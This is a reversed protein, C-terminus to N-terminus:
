ATLAAFYKKKLTEQLKDNTIIHEIAKNEYEADLYKNALGRSIEKKLNCVNLLKRYDRSNNIKDFDCLIDSLMKEVDIEMISKLNNKVDALNECKDLKKSELYSDISTKIRRLAIREMNARFSEWFAEKFATIKGEFSGPHSGRITTKMVDEDMLLMEIENFPLVTISQSRLNDIEDSSRLDGDIIGKAEIGIWTAENLVKCYYYVQKHGGVPIVTYKDCFLGSYVKYDISSKDEGECFLVPNKSGLIETLLTRPLEFDDKIIEFSFQDPYIYKKIWIIQADHRALTFNVSHTIFIFQCDKRERVLLDWITNALSPNLYTEREDIVVFSNRPAMLTSISYYLAAKEGESLGNIPYDITNRRCYVYEGMTDGFLIDIDKFLTRIIRRVKGYICYDKDPKQNNEDCERLYSFYDERMAILLRTFQYKHFDSFGYDTESKSLEISNKLIQDKVDSVRSSLINSEPSFFMSKQAPIVTIRELDNGKLIQALTTKGSGNSGILVINRDINAFQTLLSIARIDDTWGIYDYVDYWHTIDPHERFLTQINNLYEQIMDELRETLTGTRKTSITKIQNLDKITTKIFNHVTSPLEQERIASYEESYGSYDSSYYFQRYSDRLNQAYDNVAELTEEAIVILHEIQEYTEKNLM